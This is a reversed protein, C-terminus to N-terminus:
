PLKPDDIELKRKSTRVKKFFMRFNAKEREHRIIIFFMNKCNLIVHVPAHIMFHLILQGNVEFSFNGTTNWFIFQNQMQAGIVQGRARSDVKGKLVAYRM